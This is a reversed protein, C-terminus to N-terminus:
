PRVWGRRIAYRILAVRDRMGLKKLIHGRHADVTKPSICLMQAIEKATYSEAILRVVELERATLESGPERPPPQGIRPRLVLSRVIRVDIFVTAVACGILACFAVDAGDALHSDVTGPEFALFAAFVFLLAVNAAFVPVLLAAKPDPLRYLEPPFVKQM